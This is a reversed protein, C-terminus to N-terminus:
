KGEYGAKTSSSATNEDEPLVSYLSTKSLVSSEVGLAASGWLMILPFNLTM